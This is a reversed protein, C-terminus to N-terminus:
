HRRGGGASCTPLSRRSISPGPPFVLDRPRDDLLLYPCAGRQHRAPFLAFRRVLRVFCPQLLCPPLLGSLIARVSVGALPTFAREITKWSSRSVSRVCGAVTCFIWFPAKGREVSLRNVSARLLYIRLRRIRLQPLRPLLRFEISASFRRGFTTGCPDRSRGRRM